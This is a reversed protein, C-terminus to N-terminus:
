PVYSYGYLNVKGLTGAGGSAALEASVANGKTGQLVGDPFSKEVHDYVYTEWIVTSGDKIQLLAGATAASYGADVGEVVHVEDTSAAEQATAKSNDQSDTDSWAGRRRRADRGKRIPDGAM